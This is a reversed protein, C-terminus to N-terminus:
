KGAREQSLRKTRREGTSPTGAPQPTDAAAPEPPTGRGRVSDLVSGLACAAYSSYGLASSGQAMLLSWNGDDGDGAGIMGYVGSFTLLLGLGVNLQALSEVLEDAVRDPPRLPAGLWGLRRLGRYCVLHVIAALLLFQGVSVISTNRFYQFLCCFWMFDNM